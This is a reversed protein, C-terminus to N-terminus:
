CYPPVINNLFLPSPSCICTGASNFFTAQCGTCVANSTCYDCYSGCQTAVGGSVFYGIAAVSCVIPTPTATNLGPPNYDCTQCNPDHTTCAICTYTGPELVQGASCACITGSIILNNVCSSCTTGSDCTQCVPM